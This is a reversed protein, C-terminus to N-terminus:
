GGPVRQCRSPCLALWRPPGWWCGPSGPLKQFNSFDWNVPIASAKGGVMAGGLSLRGRGCSGVRQCKGDEGGLVLVVDAQQLSIEDAQKALYAHTIEVQSLDASSLPCCPGLSFACGPATTRCAHGAGRSPPAGGRHQGPAPCAAGARGPQGGRRPEAALRAGNGEQGQGEDRRSGGGRVHPPSALDRRVSLRPCEQLKM